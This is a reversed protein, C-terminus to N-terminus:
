LPEEDGNKRFEGPTFGTIRKFVRIFSFSHTYGVQLAIDQVSDNSSGLLVRAKQMRVRILYDVFKEGQLEKFLASFHQPSLEFHESIQNLSLNSDSLRAEIYERFLELNHFQPHKERQQTIEGFFSNLDRYLREELEEVTSFSNVSDHLRPLLAGWAATADGSLGSLEDTFQHLLYDALEVIMKRTPFGTKLSTFVARYVTEWERSGTRFHHSLTRISALQDYIAYAPKDAITEHTIVRNHGASAKVDLMQMAAEYSQPISSLNQVTDGFGVTVTFKLYQEVWARLEECMRLTDPLTDREQEDLFVLNCLRDRSLWDIWVAFSYQDALEQVVSQLAFKLLLRDHETYAEEFAAYHDMEILIALYSHNDLPLGLKSLEQKWETQGIYQTGTILDRFLYRKKLRWEKAAQEEHLQSEQILREVASEIFAFQDGQLAHQDKMIYHQIRNSIAEIPRHNRRFVIFLLALGALVILVAVLIWSNTLLSLLGGVKSNKLGSHLVWGTTESAAAALDDGERKEGAIFLDGQAATLYAYHIDSASISALMDQLSYLPINIVIVGQSATGFPVGKTLSVVPQSTIGSPQPYARPPFWASQGPNAMFQKIFANDKFDELTTMHSDSLVRDDSTRYLYFSDIGSVTLFLERLRSYLLYHSYTEDTLDANFFNQLQINTSTERIVTQEINALWSDFTKVVNQAYVQNANKAERGANQGIVALFTVSLSASLLLFVSLYSLFFRLWPNRRM